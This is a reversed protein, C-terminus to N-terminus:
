QLKKKLKFISVKFLKSCNKFNNFIEYINMFILKDDLNDISYLDKLMDDKGLKGDTYMQMKISTACIDLSKVRDNSISNKLLILNSM